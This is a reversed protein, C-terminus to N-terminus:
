THRRPTVPRCRPQSSNTAQGTMAWGLARGVRSVGLRARGGPCTAEGIVACREAADSM